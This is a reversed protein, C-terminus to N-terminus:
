FAAGDAETLPESNFDAFEDTGSSTIECWDPDAIIELASRKEGLRTEFERNRLFGQVQIGQGRKVIRSFTTALAGFLVARFVQKAVGVALNAFPQKDESKSWYQLPYKVQGILRAINMYEAELPQQSVSLANVVQTNGKQSLQGKVGTKEGPKLWDPQAKAALIVPIYETYEDGAASVNTTSLVFGTKSVSKVDGVLKVGNFEAM